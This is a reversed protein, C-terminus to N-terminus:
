FNCGVSLRLSHFIDENPASLGFARTLGLEFRMFGRLNPRFMRTYGYGVTGTVRKATLYEYEKLLLNDGSYPARSDPSITALVGDNKMEGGGKGYLLGLSFEDQNKGSIVRKTASVWADWWNIDQERYFPYISVLQQRDTYNGGASIIWSPCYDKIGLYANYELGFNTLGKDLAKSKGFVEIGSVSGVINEPRWVIEYNTLLDYGFNFKLFHQQQQSPTFSLKGLYALGTGEHESFIIKADSKSGFYGTRKLASFENFFRLGPALNLNIQLAAGNFQSFAPTKSNTYGSGGAPIPFIETRGYFIGLDIFPDYLRDTTGKRDFEVGEINRRYIYNAGIEVADAIQWVFGLSATMDLMSNKHRLDKHKAYNAALYDIKGGISFSQTLRAGVAGILHYQEIQKQGSNAYGTEVIDFLHNDPNIFASGAMNQGTFNDYNIKGYFVVKRNLRFFSETLAGATFSNDSQYYNVFKGNDKRAYIEAISITRVTDPLWTLGSANYGSLWVESHRVFDFDRWSETPQAQLHFFGGFLMAGTILHKISKIM